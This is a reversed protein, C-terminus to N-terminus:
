VLSLPPDLPFSLSSLQLTLIEFLFQFVPSARDVSMATDCFFGCFSHVAICRFLPSGTRTSLFVSVRSNALFPSPVM